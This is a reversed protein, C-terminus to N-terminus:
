PGAKPAGSSGQSDNASAAPANEAPATSSAAGANASAQEPASEKKADIPMAKVVAGPGVKLIGDVVVRDGAKLGETVAINNGSSIGLKVPRIEIKSDAGVLWVFPGQIGHMLARKPIVLSGAVSIGEIRARTVQGPLLTGKANDLVARVDVTGTGNGVSPAIFEIPANEGLTNGQTDVVRVNV